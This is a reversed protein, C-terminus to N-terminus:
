KESKTKTHYRKGKWTFEKVGSKRSTSFATSFSMDDLNQATNAVTTKSSKIIQQELVGPNYNSVTAVNTSVKKTRKARIREGLGTLDKGLKSFGLKTALGGLQEATTTTGASTQRRTYDKKMKHYKFESTGLIKAGQRASVGEGYAKAQQSKTYQRMPSEKRGVGFNRQMPSGKMKFPTNAM